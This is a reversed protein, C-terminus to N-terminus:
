WRRYFSFDVELLLFFKIKKTLSTMTEGMEEKKQILMTRKNLSKEEFLQMELEDKDKEFGRLTSSVAECTVTMATSYHSLLTNYVYLYSINDRSAVFEQLVHQM